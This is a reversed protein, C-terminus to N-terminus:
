FESRQQQADEGRERQSQCHYSNVGDYGKSYRLSGALEAQPCPPEFRVIDTIGLKAALERMRDPDARESRGSPGGVLVVLLRKALEPEADILRAAAKLVVDPGKLPQVRGAFVLM